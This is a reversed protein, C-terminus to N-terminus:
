VLQRRKVNLYQTVLDASLKENSALTFQVGRQKLKNGLERLNQWQVHGGLHRYLDDVRNVNADAFVPQVGPLQIMNVLLLHQRCVLEANRAFSEALLPDDLATLFVLLARRRLRTRIFAFLEDYDPTVSQPQLTYLADRCLTYHAQGNRARVFDVVRNSFTLLGFLDGQREAALALVLAANIFRELSSIRVGPRAPDEVERASLRSADLVVYIEQTREIQFVKTVPRGRKATAKWHIDEFSDGPIYERLKEFDRGKGVQRQAHFGFAGRNLFLAAVNKREGLLDPYVRLETQLPMAARASWFGLPSAGEVHCRALAFRGRQRPTCPWNIRSIQNQGPVEVVLDEQPSEVVRPLPLGIRLRRHNAATSWFRLEIGGARDKSLRVTEACSLGLGELSRFALAADLLAVILLVTISIFALPAADPLVGALTTLPVAILATWLILRTRPVLM